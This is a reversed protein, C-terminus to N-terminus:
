AAKARLKPYDVQIEVVTNAVIAANNDLVLTSESLNILGNLSVYYPHGQDNAAKIHSLPVKKLIDTEAVRLILYASNLRAADLQTTSEGTQAGPETVWLGVMYHQEVTSKEELKYLRQGASVPVQINAKYIVPGVPTEQFGRGRLYPYYM